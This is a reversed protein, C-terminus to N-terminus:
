LGGDEAKSEKRPGPGGKPEQFHEPFWSHLVAVPWNPEREHPSWLADSEKAMSYLIAMWSSASMATEVGVLCSFNQEQVFVYLTMAYSSMIQTWPFDYLIAPHFSFQSSCSSSFLFFSLLTFRTWCPLFSCHAFICRCSHCNCSANLTIVSANRFKNQKLTMTANSVHMYTPLKGM